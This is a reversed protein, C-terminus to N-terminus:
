AASAPSARSASLLTLVRVAPESAPRDTHHITLTWGRRRAVDAIGARHAAMRDRYSKGWAVADGIRLRLGAELDELVAQGDFPFTEEVPDVVM